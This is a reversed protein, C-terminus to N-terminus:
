RNMVNIYLFKLKESDVQTIVECNPEGEVIETLGYKEKDDTEVRVHAKDLVFLSPDVLLVTTLLDYMVGGDFGGYETDQSYYDIYVKSITALGKALDPNSIQDFVEKTFTVQRCINAPVIVIQPHGSELIRKLSHPDNYVNFEAYPSVNGKEGFVGGMLILKGTKLFLEPAQEILHGINTSPGIAVITIDGHVSSYLIPQKWVFVVLVM